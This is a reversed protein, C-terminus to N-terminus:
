SFTLSARLVDTRNDFMCRKWSVCLWGYVANYHSMPHAHAAPSHLVFCRSPGGWQIKVKVERYKGLWWDVDESYSELILVLTKFSELAKGFVDWAPRATQTSCHVQLSHPPSQTLVVVVGSGWPDEDRRSKDLQFKLQTWWCKVSRIGTYYPSCDSHTLASGPSRSFIQVTKLSVVPHRM